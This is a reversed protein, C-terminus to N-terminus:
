MKGFFNIEYCIGRDFMLVNYFTWISFIKRIVLNQYPISHKFILSTGQNESDQERLFINRRQSHKTMLELLM